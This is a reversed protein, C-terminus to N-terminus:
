CIANRSSFLFSFSYKCNLDLPQSVIEKWNTHVANANQTSTEEKEDDESSDSPPAMDEETTVENRPRKPSSTQAPVISAKRKAPPAPKTPQKQPHSHSTKTLSHAPTPDKQPQSQSKETSPPAPTITNSMIKDQAISPGPNSPPPPPCSSQHRFSEPEPLPSETSHHSSERPPSPTSHTSHHSSAQQSEDLSTLPSGDRLEDQTVKTPPPPHHSSESGNPAPPLPIPQPSPPHSKENNLPPEPQNNHEKDLDSQPPISIMRNRPTPGPTFTAPQTTTSAAMHLFLVTLQAKETPTLNQREGLM